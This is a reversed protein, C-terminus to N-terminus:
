LKEDKSKQLSPLLRSDSLSKRVRNGLKAQVFTMERTLAFFRGGFGQSIDYFFGSQRFVGKGRM